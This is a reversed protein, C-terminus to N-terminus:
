TVPPARSRSTRVQSLSADLIQQHPHGYTPTVFVRGSFAPAGIPPAPPM